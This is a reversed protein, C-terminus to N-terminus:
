RATSFLASVRDEGSSLLMFYAEPTLGTTGITFNRSTRDFSKVPRGVLDYITGHIASISAEGSWNVLLEGGEADQLIRLTSSEVDPTRVSESGQQFSALIGSWYSSDWDKYDYSQVDTSPPRHWYDFYTFDWGKEIAISSMDALFQPGGSHPYTMGFEGMFIPAHTEQEVQSVFYLLTDAIFTKDYQAMELMSNIAELYAGPYVVQATDAAETFGTPHYDHFEYVVNSDLIIPVLSFLTPNTYGPGQILIPIDPSAARISDVWLQTTATLDVGNRKAYYEFQSTDICCLSDFFPDPEVTPTIGACLTDSCYRATIERLMSGYLQQESPNYWITSPPDAGTGELAVDYRGPGQRVAIAYHLGAARCYAIRDDLAQINESDEQYPATPSRFGDTAIYALTAGFSKVDLMDQQSIPVNPSIVFGRFNSPRKWLEIKSGEQAQLSAEFSLLFSILVSAALVRTM